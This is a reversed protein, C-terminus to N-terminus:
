RTSSTPRRRRAAAALRRGEAGGARLGARLARRRGARLRVARDPLQRGAQTTSRGFPHLWADVRHTITPRAHYLVWSGAAFLSLGIAVFSFRNTAVYLVALFGGFFMLSSGIDQIFFLMAMAAGWVLLLPGFHKLPPITIGLFRRGGIVLV